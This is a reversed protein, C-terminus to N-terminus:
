RPSQCFTATMWYLIMVKPEAVSNVSIYGTTRLWVFMSFLVCAFLLLAGVPFGIGLSRDAFDALTSGAAASAVITTWYLWPHFRRAWIQAWILVLLLAGFLVTEVLYGGVGSLGASQTGAALWTMPVSDGTEGLATALIKIIWFGFTIAPVKSAVRELSTNM